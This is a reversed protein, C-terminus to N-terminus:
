KGETEDPVEASTRSLTAQRSKKWVRARPIDGFRLRFRSGPISLVIEALETDTFQLWDKRPAM